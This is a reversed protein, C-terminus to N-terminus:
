GGTVPLMNQQVVNVNLIFARGPPFSLPFFPRDWLYHQQGNGSCLWTMKLFILFLISKHRDKTRIQWINSKAMVFHLYLMSNWIFPGKSKGGQYYKKKNESTKRKMTKQFYYKVTTSQTCHEVNGLTQTKMFVLLKLPVLRLTGM